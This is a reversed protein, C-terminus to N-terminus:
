NNRDVAEPPKEMWEREIMLNAGDEVYLGVDKILNGYMLGVDHRGNLSAGNGYARIRMSFMDIKHFLMLKDSFPAVTSTTVLHDLTTPSPLRDRNLKESCMELHKQNLEIGRIFYHKIEEERAVQSFGILLAKSIVDNNISDYLHAIELAHLPRLNGFFGNLFSQKKVFEVKKPVPIPPSNQLYGKKLLLENINTLLKITSQFADVFFNSIDKRTIMPIAQTYISMGAKAVYKLYHLYLEDLFLRPASLDVDDNTFGVPIPFHEEKFIDKITKVFSESLNYAYELIKKIDEDEVHTLYYSLVCNSMSNGLYMAWLKGMEASTLDQKSTM